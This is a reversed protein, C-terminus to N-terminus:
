EGWWARLAEIIQVSVERLFNGLLGGVVAVIVAMLVFMWFATSENKRDKGVVRHPEDISWQCTKATSKLEKLTAELKEATAVLATYKAEAAKVRDLARAM